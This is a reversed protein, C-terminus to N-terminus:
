SLSPLHGNDKCKSSVEQIKRKSLIRERNKINMGFITAGISLTTKRNHTETGSYTRNGKSIRWSQPQSWTKTQISPEDLVYYEDDSCIAIGSSNTEDALVPVCPTVATGLTLLSTSM